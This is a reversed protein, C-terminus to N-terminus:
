LGQGEAAMMEEAVAACGLLGPEDLTILTTPIRRLLHAYPPHNEFAERFSADDLLAGIRRAVGGGVYVGGLAKFMLALDGAFRGFLRVFLMVCARAASDGAQAGALIEACAPTDVGEHMASYLRELGPGCLITEASVASRAERLRAFIAEEDDRAPGFSVHGGETPVVQWGAGNPVLAAVGLGTGPGFVVRAGAATRLAPGLPRVDEAILRQVGWAVAEFDNIGRIATWGFRKALETFRFSWARNTMTVADGEIPAAIALVGARPRAGTEDLYRGIAAELNAVVDGRLKIVNDPRGGAGHMAFRCNTAGIDALLVNSM